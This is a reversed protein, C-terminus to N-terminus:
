ATRRLSTPSIRCRFLHLMRYAPEREAIQHVLFRSPHLIHYGTCQAVDERDYIGVVCGGSILCFKGENGDAILRGVERRYVEWEEYLPHDESHPRLESHHMSMSAPPMKMM